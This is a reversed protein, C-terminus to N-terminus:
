LSQAASLVVGVAQEVTLKDTNIVLDYHTPLEDALKYFRQLYDRRERDSAAVAKSAETASKGEVAAIRQARTEPSATVLVRLIGETGALAMSAAHAVIVAQGARAVEHIAFRILVRLDEETAHYSPTPMFLELPVGTALTMPGALDQAIALRDLVRQLLPRRQEAAAVLKPDVQAQQAARTIIQEDVYRFSLRRAVQQGIIEGGAAITRSICVVRFGM